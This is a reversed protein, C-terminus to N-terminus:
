VGQRSSPRQASEYFTDAVLNNNGAAAKNGVPDLNDKDALLQAILIVFPYEKLCKPM